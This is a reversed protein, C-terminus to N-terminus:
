PVIEVRYFRGDSGRTSDFICINTGTGVVAAGFDTWNTASLSSAWQVQYMRNTESPWCIEAAPFISVTPVASANHRVSQWESVGSAEYALDGWAIEPEQDEDDAFLSGSLTLTGDYFVDFSSGNTTGHLEIRYTHFADDTDVNAVSGRQFRTGSNVFVEDKGIWLWNAIGKQPYFYIGAVARGAVTSSSEVVRVRAEIILNTPISLTNFEQFYSARAFAPSTEMRLVGSVLTVTNTLEGYFLWSPSADTPFQGSAATWVADGARSLCASCFMLLVTFYVEIAVTNTKM